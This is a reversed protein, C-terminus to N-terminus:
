RAAARANLQERWNLVVTIAAPVDPAATSATSPRTVLFRQGDPSVDITSFPFGANGVGAGSMLDTTFLPRPVGAEFSAGDSKVDVAMIRYEQGADGLQRGGVLDTYFLEKGDRRWIPQVAAGTSLAYKRAGTPFARVYLQRSGTEDSMYALWRGDPSVVGNVESFPGQVLAVPKRDGTLPLLWIDPRRDDGGTYVLSKGDPTWSSPAVREKTAMLLEDGSTGGDVLKQYLGWSGNRLSTFAVRSGDPSWVPSRSDQEPAFTLRTRTGRKVDLLWLDGGTTDHRHYAIRAADPSLEIGRYAYAGSVTEILKGERDLWDLRVVTGEGAVSVSGGSRYTLVGNQSVSFAALGTTVDVAVGEAIRVPDGSLRLRDADFRQALLTGQRVFVVHGPPSYVAQSDADLLPTTEASDLSGIVVAASGTGTRARYFFHRGDPLFSPRHHAVEGDKLATAPTVEGGSAPVQSLPGTNAAFVIIGDRGWAAGRAGQHADSLIQPPGGSLDIKKLKSDAFFAIFRGDPSWIPHLAGDTGALPAATLSAVPRLWVQLKGTADVATFALTRGDPSISGGNFAFSAPPGTGPLHFRTTEPAVVAFTAVAAPEARLLRLVVAALALTSLLLVAALVWPTRGRWRRPQGARDDVVPSADPTEGPGSMAEDIELRADAIDALRRKRDKELCRRILKRIAVPTGAPLASWDPEKTIIFALTDTIEDGAFARAGTLMEYLVAGFAWIDARRDAPKGRAQEPSMYAATGLIMGLATMAAPSTITPSLSVSSGAAAGAPELAKALGFDLVKVTGDPRLKINAPKLDRHIIHQEHAAELADAIQKAIPLADVVPFAGAAIADSLTNGEVLEMVLANAGTSRELGYIAAINPHNLLALTKAERDFRALREADAAVADPLVKIAVQRGLGTDIARYVEGMGGEGLKAIVEYVGIRSGIQM